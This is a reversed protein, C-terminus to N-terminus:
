QVDVGAMWQRVLDEVDRDLAARMRQKHGCSPDDRGPCPNITYFKAGWESAKQRSITRQRHHDSISLRYSDSAGVFEGVIMAMLSGPKSRCEDISIIARDNNPDRRDEADTSRRRLIEAAMARAKFAARDSLETTEAEASIRAAICLSGHVALRPSPAGGAGAPSASAALLVAGALAGTGLARKDVTRM